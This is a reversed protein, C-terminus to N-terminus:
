VKVFIGNSNDKYGIKVISALNYTVAIPFLEYRLNLTGLTKAYHTILTVYPVVFQSWQSTKRKSKVEKDKDKLVKIMKNIIFYSLNIKTSTTAMELLWIDDIVM